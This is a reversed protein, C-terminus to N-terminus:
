EYVHREGCNKLLVRSWILSKWTSIFSPAIRSEAVLTWTKTSGVIPWVMAEAADYNPLNVELFCAAESSAPLTLPSRVDASICMWKRDDLFPEISQAMAAYRM